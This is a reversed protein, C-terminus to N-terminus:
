QLKEYCYYIGPDLRTISVTGNCPFSNTFSRERWWRLVPGSYNPISVSDKPNYMYAERGMAILPPLPFVGGPLYQAIQANLASSASGNNWCSGSSELCYWTADTGPYRGNPDFQVYRAFALKISQTDSVYVADRSASRSQAFSAFIIGMLTTIIAFVVLLEVLSFGKQSHLKM